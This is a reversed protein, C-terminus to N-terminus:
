DERIALSSVALLLKWNITFFINQLKVNRNRIQLFDHCNSLLTKNNRNSAIIKSIIANTEEAENTTASGAYIMLVNIANQIAIYSLNSSLALGIWNSNNVVEKLGGYLAFINILLFNIEVFVLSSTFTSNILEIVDCLIHYLEPIEGFDSSKYATVIKLNHNKNVNFSMRFHVILSKYLENLQRV